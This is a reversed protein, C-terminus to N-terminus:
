SDLTGSKFDMTSRVEITCRVHQIDPINMKALEETLKALYKEYGYVQGKRVYERTPFIYFWCIKKEGWGDTGVEGASLYHISEHEEDPRLSDDTWPFRADVNLIAQRLEALNPENGCLSSIFGITGCVAHDRRDNVLGISRLFTRM